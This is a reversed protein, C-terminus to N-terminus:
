EKDEFSAIVLHCVKCVIDGDFIYEVFKDCVECYVKDPLEVSVRRVTQRNQYHCGTPSM